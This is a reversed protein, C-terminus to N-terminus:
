TQSLPVVAPEGSGSHVAAVTLMVTLATLSGGDAAILAGDVPASPVSILTLPRAVSISSVDNVYAQLTVFFPEGYTVPVPVGNVKVGSSLPVYATLRVMVSACLPVPLAEAEIATLLTLGTMEATVPGAADIARRLGPVMRM